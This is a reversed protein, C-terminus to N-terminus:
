KREEDHAPAENHGGVEPVLELLIDDFEQGLAANCRSSLENLDPIRIVDDQPTFYAAVWIKRGTKMIDYFTIDYGSGKLTDAVISKIKVTIEKGPAFLFVDKIARLLISVAGPLMFVIILVSVIQDFYPLIFSLRTNKLFVSLLFAGSMGLSYFVDLKWGYVEMEITPSRVSKNIRFMILLIILSLVSLILQFVAIFGGDVIQGGRLAIQLSGVSMSLTISLLMFGKIIIFISEVQLFGFPRKETIPKHYLPTLILTLGLIAIEVADYAADILVSQSHAYIGAAFELIVFFAGGFLSLWLIKKELRITNNM